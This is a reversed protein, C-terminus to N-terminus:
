AELLDALCGDELAVRKLDVIFQDRLFGFGFTGNEYLWVRGALDYSSYMYLIGSVAQERVEGLLPTVHVRGDFIMEEEASFPCTVFAHNRTWFVPSTHRSLSLDEVKKCIVGGVEDYKVLYLEMNRGESFGKWLGQLPKAVTPSFDSVKIFHEPEWKIRAQREKEKKRQRRRDSGPSTTKNALQTYMESVVFSPPSTPDESEDSSSGKAVPSKQEERSFRNEEVMIHGNGM